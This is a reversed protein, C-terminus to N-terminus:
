VMGRMKRRDEKLRDLRQALNRDAESLGKYRKANPGPGGSSSSRTDRGGAKNQQAEKRANYAAVRRNHCYTFM